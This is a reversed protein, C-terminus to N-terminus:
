EGILAGVTEYLGPESVRSQIGVKTFTLSPIWIRQGTIQICHDLDKGCNTTIVGGQYHQWKSADVCASPPGHRYLWNAMTDENKDSTIYGWNSIRAAIDTDNFKCTSDHGTYPYSAETMQGGVHILYQVLWCPILFEYETHMQHTEVQVDMVPMTVALWNSEDTM